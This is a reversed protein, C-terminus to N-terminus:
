GKESRTTNDNYREKDAQNRTLAGMETLTVSQSTKADSLQWTIRKEGTVEDVIETSKFSSSFTNTNNPIGMKETSSAIPGSAYREKDAQNRTLAGHGSLIINKEEPVKAQWSKKTEGTMKDTVEVLEFRRASVMPKPLLANIDPSFKSEASALPKSSAYASPDRSGDLISQRLEDALSHGKEVANRALAVQPNNNVQPIDLTSKFRLISPKNDGEEPSNKQVSEPTRSDVTKNEFQSTKIRENNVTVLEKPMAYYNNIVYNNVISKSSTPASGNSSIVSDTGGDVSDEPKSNKAPNTTVSNETNGDMNISVSLQGMIEVQQELALFINHLQLLRDVPKDTEHEKLQSKEEAILGEKDKKLSADFLKDVPLEEITKESLFPTLKDKIAPYVYKDVFRQSLEDINNDSLINDFLETELTKQSSKIVQKLDKDSHSGNVQKILKAACDLVKSEKIEDPTLLTLIILANEPQYQLKQGQLNGSHGLNLTNTVMELSIDPYKETLLSKIINAQTKQNNLHLDDSKSSINFTKDIVQEKLPFYAEQGVNNVSNINNSFLKNDKKSISLTNNVTSSVANISM